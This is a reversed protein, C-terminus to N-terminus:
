PVGVGFPVVHAVKKCADSWDCRAKRERHDDVAGLADLLGGLADAALPVVDVREAYHM